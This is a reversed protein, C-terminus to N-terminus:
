LLHRMLDPDQAFLQALRPRLYRQLPERDMRNLLENIFGFSLLVRAEQESIGRTRLYHLQESDLQAVTAGHSCQVDDAYIELEPKTDVEATNSTLLNRNSLHASTKQADRHIHIRGNFVAQGHDAVIGRFTQESTCHPVEHDMTVHYDVHQRLRPLYVGNLECHAGEGRHRVVLDIRKLRSGLAVHFGNLTASRGLSAHIAGVHLVGPEELHLRYHHLRANDGVVLETVGNTFVNQGEASSAFHELVTAESGEELVVLLRQAIGFEAPQATTLWVLQIPQKIHSNRAVRLYVGDALWSDNLATFLRAQGNALSGLHASILSIDSDDSARSFPVLSLGEPLPGPSSLSESYQGNVFALVHAGLDAIAFHGVLDADAPAAQPAAQYQGERLPRLSTYKWEEVKLDPLVRGEGSHRGLTNFAALWGPVSGAERSLAKEVFDTM